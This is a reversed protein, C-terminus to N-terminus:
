CRLPASDPLIVSPFFFSFHINPTTMFSAMEIDADSVLGGESEFFQGKSFIAKYGCPRYKEIQKKDFVNCVMLLKKAFAVPPNLLIAALLIGLLIFLYPKFRRSM